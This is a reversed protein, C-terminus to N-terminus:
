QAAKPPLENNALVAREGLANAIEVGQVGNNETIIAHQLGPRLAISPEDSRIWVPSDGVGQLTVGPPVRLSGAVHYRGAPLVARGGAKAAEDLIKQVHARKKAFLSDLLALAM